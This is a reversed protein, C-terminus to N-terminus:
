NEWRNGLEIAFFSEIQSWADEVSKGQAVDPPAANSPDMFGHECSPYVQLAAIRKGARQMATRFHDITEPPIGEDRGAFIGLVPAKLTALANADTSLRGYCVAVARLRPERIAADLAYGGGMDWGIIGISNPQVDPRKELYDVASTLDTLVRDEPLGREMIHADMLDTVVEGRYLDVALAVYGKGALRKGQDKLWETLGSNGHVLIIAPSAAGRAPRSLVSRVVENGSPYEVTQLILNSGDEEAKTACGLMALIPLLSLWYKM